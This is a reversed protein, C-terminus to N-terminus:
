VPIEQVQSEDATGVKTIEDLWEMFQQETMDRNLSNDNTMSLIKENASIIIEM